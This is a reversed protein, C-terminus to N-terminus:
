DRGCIERIRDVGGIEEIFEAVSPPVLEKWRPDGMLMLSRIRTSSFREREFPPPVLIEYGIERFLRIVLPNRAVVYHFRPVMMEVYRPWVSNMMIDPIPVIIVRSLDIKADRLGLRLMEIREGATFPNPITHSEQATGVAIVVEDVRELAWKVVYIHGWHVPQFRGPFLARKM